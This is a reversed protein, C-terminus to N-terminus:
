KIKEMLEWYLREYIDARTQEKVLLIDREDSKTPQKDTEEKISSITSNEANVPTTSSTELLDLQVRLGREIDRMEKETCEGIYQSLRNKSITKVQECLAISDEIASNIEAHTPLPKKEATTLPVITVMTGYTNAKENSVVM